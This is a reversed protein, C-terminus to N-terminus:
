TTLIIRPGYLSKRVLSLAAESAAEAETLRRFALDGPEALAKKLDGLLVLSADLIQQAERSQAAKQGASKEVYETFRALADKTKAPDFADLLPKVRDRNVKALRLRGVNEFGPHVLQIDDPAFTGLLGEDPAPFQHPVVDLFLALPDAGQKFAELEEAELPPFNAPVGIHLLPMAVEIWFEEPAAGTAGKTGFLHAVLEPLRPALEAAAVVPGEAPLRQLTGVIQQEFQAKAEAPM